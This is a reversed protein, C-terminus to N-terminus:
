MERILQRGTEIVNAFFRDVDERRAEHNLVVLRIAATKGLWGYNVFSKGEEIMRARLKLNFDNLDLGTGDHGSPLYRFCVNISSRPALLELEPTEHVISEAHAALAMFRDMRDAYGQSGFYKWALWLKFSDVERGCQLSNPGLDHNALENDHFIYDTGRSSFTSRLYGSERVLFMSCILPLGMMKHANWILSDARETGRCLERHKPSLLLSGGLSGDVHFWLNHEEAIDAIEPLPDFAGKVTTGATAGVFFPRRGAAAEKRILDELKRPIMRGKEDSPVKILGARGLGLVNAAKDFSYHSQDSVYASLPPLGCLGSKKASPLAKNRAIMMAMLNGNSGGTVMQGEPNRFGAFAGMKKILEMEMLTALPAMEYTYMSTNTLSTFVEGLFGPVTFGAWLQNFYQPHATRVSNDLYAAILSYLDKDGSGKDPLSLDIKHRLEDPSQQRTIPIDPQRDDRIYTNILDLFQQDFVFTPSKKV